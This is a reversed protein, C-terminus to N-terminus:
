SWYRPLVSLDLCPLLKKRAIETPLFGLGCDPAVVLREPPLVTLVEQLRQRIEEVSEVRSSAIKVSGLVIQPNLPNYSVDSWETYVNYFRWAASRSRMERTRYDRGSWWGPDQLFGLREIPVESLILTEVITGPTIISSVIKSILAVIANGNRDLSVLNTTCTWLKRNNQKAKKKDEQKRPRRRELENTVTGPLCNKMHSSKSSFGVIQHFVHSWFSTRMHGYLPEFRTRDHMYDHLPSLIM